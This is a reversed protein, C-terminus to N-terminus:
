PLGRVQDGLPPGDPGLGPAVIRTPRQHGFLLAMQAKLHGGQIENIKDFEAALLSVFELLSGFSLPVPV